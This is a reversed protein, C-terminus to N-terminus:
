LGIYVDCAADVYKCQLTYQDSCYRHQSDIGIKSQLPLEGSRFGAVMM